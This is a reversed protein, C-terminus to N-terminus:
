QYRDKLAMVFTKYYDVAEDYRGEKVLQVSPQIMNEYMYDYIEAKNSCQNISRVISPGSLYYFQVLQAGEKDKLMYEDRLSRLVQLPECDDPMQKHQVCATTLFCNGTGTGTGTETKTPYPMFQLSKGEKSIIEAYKYKSIHFTPNKPFSKEFKHDGSVKKGFKTSVTWVPEAANDSKAATIIYQYEGQKKPSTFDGNEFYGVKLILIKEEASASKFNEFGYHNVKVEYIWQGEKSTTDATSRYITGPDEQTQEFSRAARPLAAVAALALGGSRIFKRRDM